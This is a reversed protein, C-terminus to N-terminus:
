QLIGRQRLAAEVERILTLCADLDQDTTNGPSDTEHLLYRVDPYSNIDVRSTRGRRDTCKLNQMRTSLQQTLSNLGGDAIQTLWQSIM